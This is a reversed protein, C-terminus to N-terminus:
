LAPHSLLALLTVPVVSFEEFYPYVIFCYVSWCLLVCYLVATGSVFLHPLLTLM